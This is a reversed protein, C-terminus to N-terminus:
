KRSSTKSVQYSWASGNSTIIINGAEDTRLIPVQRFSYAGLVDPSPHGYSNKGVSIVALKPKTQELLASNLSTLAGHHPVKLVELDDKKLFALSLQNQTERDADDLFLTSFSGARLYLLLSSRNPDSAAFDGAPWLVELEADRGLKFADGTKATWFPISQRTVEAVFRQYPADTLAVPNYIVRKVKFNKLVDALGSIHDAHPHTVIVLDLNRDFFPLDQDLYSSVRNDPGGDILVRHDEATRILIADGEGVDYIKVTLQGVKPWALIVAWLLGTIIILSPRWPWKEVLRRGLVTLYANFGM